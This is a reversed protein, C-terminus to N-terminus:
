RDGADWTYTITSQLTLGHKGPINCQALSVRNLPDYSYNIVNGNRDTHSTRNGTARRHSDL